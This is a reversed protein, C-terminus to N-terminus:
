FPRHPQAPILWNTHSQVHLGSTDTVESHPGNYVPCQNEWYMLSLHPFPLQALPGSPLSAAPHKPSPWCPCRSSGPHPPHTHTHPPSAIGYFYTLAPHGLSCLGRHSGCVWWGSRPGALVDTMRLARLGARRERRILISSTQSDVTKLWVRRGSPCSYLLCVNLASSHRVPPTSPSTPPTPLEPHHLPRGSLRSVGAFAEPDPGLASSQSHTHTHAHAPRVPRPLAAPSIGPRGPARACM